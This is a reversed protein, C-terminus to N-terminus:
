CPSLPDNGASKYGDAVLDWVMFAGAQGVRVSGLSVTVSGQFQGSQSYRPANVDSTVGVKYSILKLPQNATAKWTTMCGLGVNPDVTVKLAPAPKDEAETPAAGGCSLAAVLVGLLLLHRRM